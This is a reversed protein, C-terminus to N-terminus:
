SEMPGTEIASEQLSLVHYLYKQSFSSSRAVWCTTPRGSLRLNIMGMQIFHCCLLLGSPMFVFVMM